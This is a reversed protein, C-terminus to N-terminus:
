SENLELIHAASKSDVKSNKRQKDSSMECDIQILKEEKRPETQSLLNPIDSENKGKINM